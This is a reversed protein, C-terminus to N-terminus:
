RFIFLCPRDDASAVLVLGAFLPAQGSTRRDDSTRACDVFVDAPAGRSCPERGKALVWAGTGEGEGQAGGSHGMLFVGFCCVAFAPHLSWGAAQWCGRGHEFSFHRRRIALWKDHQFVALLFRALCSVPLPLRCVLVIASHRCSHWTLSRAFLILPMARYSYAGSDNREAYNRAKALVCPFDQITLLIFHKTIVGSRGARRAVVAFGCLKLSPILTQARCQQDDIRESARV